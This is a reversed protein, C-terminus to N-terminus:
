GPSPASLSRVNRVGYKEAIALIEDRRSKLLDELKM